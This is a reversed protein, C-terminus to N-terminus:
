IKEITQEIETKLLVQEAQARKTEEVIIEIKRAKERREDRIKRLDRLRRKQQDKKERWNM